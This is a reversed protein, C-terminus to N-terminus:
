LSSPDYKNMISEYIAQCVKELSVTKAVARPTNIVIDDGKSPSIKFVFHKDSIRTEVAFFNNVFSVKEENTVEVKVLIAFNIKMESQSRVEKADKVDRVCFQSANGKVGVTIYRNNVEDADNNIINNHPIGFYSVLEDELRLFVTELDSWYNRYAVAYENLHESLQEFKSPM